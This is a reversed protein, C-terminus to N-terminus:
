GHVGGGCARGSAERDPHRGRRCRKRGRPYCMKAWGVGAKHVLMHWRHLLSPAAAQGVVPSPKVCTPRLCRRVRRLRRQDTGSCRTSAAFNDDGLGCAECRRLEGRPGTRGRRWARNRSGPGARGRRWGRRERPDPLSFRIGPMGRRAWLDLHNLACARVRVKVWGPPPVPEPIDRLTLVDPGGHQELVVARM